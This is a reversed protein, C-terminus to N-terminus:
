SRAKLCKATLLMLVSKLRKARTCILLQTEKFNAEIYAGDAPVLAM